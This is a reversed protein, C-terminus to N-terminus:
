RIIIPGYAGGKMHMKLFEVMKRGEESIRYYKIGGEEIVEVLGMKVLSADDSYRKSMGRLAGIINSADIGTNRSIEAPYTANPYIEYLYFLTTLRVVSKKLSRMARPNYKLISSRM